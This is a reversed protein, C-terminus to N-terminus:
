LTRSIDNEVGELRTGQPDGLQVQEPALIWIALIRKLEPNGELWDNVLDILRLVADQSQPHEFRIIAGVLNKLGALDEESYRNEEILLYELKPLYKAVLGPAKPILAAIDTAATWKADGNYLVIPLVPPVRM